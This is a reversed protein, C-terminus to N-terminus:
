WLIEVDAYLWLLFFMANRRCCAESIWPVHWSVHRHLEL